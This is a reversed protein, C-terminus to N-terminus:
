AAQRGSHRRERKPRFECIRHLALALRPLDLRSQYVAYRPSWEDAYKAKFRRLSDARFLFPLKRLTWHVFREDLSAPAHEASDSLPAMGLHFQAIGRAKLDLFVKAFLFDMLGNVQHGTRRMLDVTAASADYSPVLNLFAVAENEAHFAVYVPTSAVYSPEFRGLTFQRERHGPIELWQDSILRLQQLLADSLPPDFREVRYGLRELRNVTNRFEKMASGSLSFRNLDVIADDGVKLHQFGLSEFIPLRDASVQHFGVRWGKARCFDRFERVASEMDEVPGVPDGLALAYNGAVRYGLFSRGGATFFYSKDTSHKFFDQSSRGHQEAISRAQASATRNVQFNYVVPRFLVFGSYFFTVGSMWFLSDLFWAAYPTHPVISTDGVFLMLRVTGWAADWWHFNRHFEAPELLWFGAVGYIATVAFAFAARLAATAIRPPEAGMDFLRRSLWLVACLVGSSLAEELNWGNRSPLPLLHFLVSGSALLFAARWARQKYAWLHVAVLILAFGSVLTLTRHIGAFDLPFLLLLWDPMETPVPGGMLSLLNLAGSGAVLLAVLRAIAHLGIATASIPKQSVLEGVPAQFQYIRMIHKM